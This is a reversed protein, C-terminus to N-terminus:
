IVLWAVLLALGASSAVGAVSHPPVQLKGAYLGLSVPANITLHNRPSRDMSYIQLCAAPEPSPQIAQHNSGVVPLDLIEPEVAVRRDNRAALHHHPAPLHGIGAFSLMEPERTYPHFLASAPLLDCSM